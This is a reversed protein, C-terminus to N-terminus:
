FGIATWVLTSSSDTADSSSISFQSGSSITAWLQGTGTGGPTNTRSIQIVYNTDSFVAAGTLTITGSSGTTLTATGSAIHNDGASPSAGTSDYLVAKSALDTTLGTVQSETISGTISAANGSINGTVQSGAIALTSQDIWATGSDTGLSSFLQGATGDTNGPFSFLNTPKFSSSTVLGGASNVALNSGGTASISINGSADIAIQSNQSGLTMGGGSGFFDFVGSATAIRVKNTGTQTIILDQGSTAHVASPLTVTGTFTPSAINAKLAVSANSALSSLLTGSDVVNSNADYTVVDGTVTAGSLTLQVANGTTGQKSNIAAISVTSAGIDAAVLARFTPQAAAGTTPGAWVTNASQTAKTIALTGATTIPSGGVTFEAPATLAVSTVTGAGPIFASYTWVGGVLQIVDGNTAGGQAIQALALQGTIQSFSPSTQSAAFGITVVNGNVSEVAFLQNVSPLQNPLQFILNGGIPQGQVITQGAVPSLFTISNVIGNTAM